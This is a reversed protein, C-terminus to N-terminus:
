GRTGEASMLLREQPNDYPGVVDDDEEEIAAGDVPPLEAFDGLAADLLALAAIRVDHIADDYAEAPVLVAHNLILGNARVDELPSVYEVTANGEEDFALARIIRVTM